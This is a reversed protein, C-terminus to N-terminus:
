APEATFEKIDDQIEKLEALMKTLENLNLQYTNLSNYEESDTITKEGDEFYKNYNLDRGDPPVRYFRGM